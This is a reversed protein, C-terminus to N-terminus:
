NCNAIQKEKQASHIRVEHMKIPKWWKWVRLMSKDAIWEKQDWIRHVHLDFWSIVGNVNYYIIHIFIASQIIKPQLKWSSASNKKPRLYNKKQEFSHFPLGSGWCMKLISNCSKCSRRFKIRQNISYSMRQTRVNM